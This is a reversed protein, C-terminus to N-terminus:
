SILELIKRRCSDINREIEGQRLRLLKYGNKKAIANKIKDRNKQEPREHWYDGDCEILVNPSPLYFDYEFKELRYQQRHTQGMSDLLKSIAIEISSPGRHLYLCSRSCFQPSPNDSYFEQGCNKCNHIHPSNDHRHAVTCERSCFKPISTLSRGNDFTKNCWQCIYTPRPKRLSQNHCERSCYKRYEGSHRIWFKKRCMPCIQTRNKRRSVAYCIISCFKHPKGSKSQKSSDRQFISDCTQCKFHYPM